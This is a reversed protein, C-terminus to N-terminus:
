GISTEAFQKEAACIRRFDAADNSQLYNLIDFHSVEAM